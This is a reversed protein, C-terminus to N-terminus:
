LVTLIEKWLTTRTDPTDLRRAIQLHGGLSGDTRQQVTPPHRSFCAAVACQIGVRGPCSLGLGGSVLVAPGALAPNGSARKNIGAGRDRGPEPDVGAPV